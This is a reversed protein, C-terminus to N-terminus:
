REHEREKGRQITPEYQQLEHECPVYLLGNEVCRFIDCKKDPSASYFGSHSYPYKQRGDFNTDSFGLTFDRRLRRSITVFDGDGRQFQRVPVFHYGGYEFVM